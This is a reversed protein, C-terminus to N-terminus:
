KFGARHQHPWCDSILLAKVKENEMGICWEVSGWIWRLVKVCFVSKGLCGWFSKERVEWVWVFGM